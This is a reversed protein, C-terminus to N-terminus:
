QVSVRFCACGTANVGAFPLTWRLWRAAATPNGTVFSAAAPVTATTATSYAVVPAGGGCALGWTGTEPLFTTSRPVADNVVFTFASASSYNSWCIRFQVTDASAAVSLPPFKQLRVDAGVVMVTALGVISGDVTDAAVISILGLRSMVVNVFVYVGDENPPANCTSASTWTFNYTDMATGELKAGPDTSTFSTNGCYDTKTGGGTGTVIVTLWFPQGLYVVPPAIITYFTGLQLFPATYFKQAIQCCIYQAMADGPNGAGLVNFRHNEPEIATNFFSVCQDPGTTTYTATFGAGSTQNIVMTTKPCFINVTQISSAGCERDTRPVHMWFERGAQAGPNGGADKAAHLLSGGSYGDYVEPGGAIVQVPGGSILKIKTLRGNPNYQVPNTPSALGAGITRLGLSSWGGANGSLQAPVWPGTGGSPNEGAPNFSQYRFIEVSAAVAGVNGIIPGNGAVGATNHGVVWYTAPAGPAILNGNELAPHACAFDSDKNGGTTYSVKHVVIRTQSSVVRVHMLGPTHWAYQSGNYLERYRELTWTLTTANWTFFLLSTPLNEDANGISLYQPEDGANAEKWTYAIRGVFNLSTSGAYTNADDDGGFCTQLEWIVPANSVLKHLFNFPAKPEIGGSWASPQFRAPAREAKCGTLMDALPGGTCSGAFVDITPSVGGAGAFGGCATDCPANPCCWKRYLTFDCAKNLPYFTVYYTNPMVCDSAKYFDFQTGAWGVYSIYTTRLLIQAEHIFPRPWGAHGTGGVVGTQGYAMASAHNVATAGQPTTGRVRAKWRVTLTAGPPLDLKWTLVTNGGGVVVGPSAAACGSPTMTWGVCPDDFGYGNPWVELQAAVTDWIRVNWWTRTSSTNKIFAEYIMEDDPMGLRPAFLLDNDGLMWFLYRRVATSPANSTRGPACGPGDWAEHATNFLFAGEPAATDGSGPEFAEGNGWDVTSRFTIRGTPGGATPLSGPFTWRLRSPPGPDPDYGPDPAPSGSGGVYHTWPPLTDTIWVANLSGTGPRGWYITYDVTDGPAAEGPSAQKTVYAITKPSPDRIPGSPAMCGCVDALGGLLGDFGPGLEVTAGDVPCSGVDAYVTLTPLCNCGDPSNTPTRCPDVTWPQSGAWTWAPGTFPGKTWVGAYTLTQMAIVNDGCDPKFYLGALDGGVGGTASGYNFVTVGVFTGTPCGPYTLDDGVWLTFSAVPARIWNPFLTAPFPSPNVEYADILCDARAAAAACGFACALLLSRVARGGSLRVEGRSTRRISHRERM